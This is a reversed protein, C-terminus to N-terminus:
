REANPASDPREYSEELIKWVGEMYSLKSKIDQMTDSAKKCADFAKSYAQLILPVSGDHRANNLETVSDSLEKIVIDCTNFYEYCHRLQMKATALKIEIESM